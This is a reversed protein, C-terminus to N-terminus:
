MDGEHVAIDSARVLWDENSHMSRTESPIYKMSRRAFTGRVNARRQLSNDTLPKTGHNVQMLVRKSERSFCDIARIRQLKVFLVLILDRRFTLPTSLSFDPNPSLNQKIEIKASDAQHGVMGTTHRREFAIADLNYLV